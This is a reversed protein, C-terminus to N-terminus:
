KQNKKKIVFNHFSFFIIKTKKSIPDFNVQKELFIYFKTPSFSKLMIIMVFLHVYWNFCASDIPLSKAMSFNEIWFGLNTYFYSYPVLTEYLQCLYSLKTLFTSDSRSFLTCSNSNLITRRYRQMANVLSINYGWDWM